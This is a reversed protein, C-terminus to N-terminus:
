VVEHTVSVVGTVYLETDWTSRPAGGNYLDNSSALTIPFTSSFETTGVIFNEHTVPDHEISYGTPLLGQGNLDIFYTTPYFLDMDVYNDLIRYRYPENVHGETLQVHDIIIPKFIYMDITVDLANNQTIPTATSWKGVMVQGPTNPGILDGVIGNGGLTYPSRFIKISNGSMSSIFGSNDSIPSIRYLGSAPLDTAELTSTSSFPAVVRTMTSSYDINGIFTLGDYSVATASTMNPISLEEVSDDALTVIFLASDGLSNSGNVLLKTEGEALWVGYVGNSNTVDITRQIANYPSQVVYVVGLHPTGSGNYYGSIYVTGDSSVAIGEVGYASPLMPLSVSNSYTLTGASHTFVELWYSSGETTTCFAYAGDSTFALPTYLNHNAPLDTTGIYSRSILDVSVFSPGFYKSLFGYTGYVTNYDTGILTLQFAPIDTIEVFTNDTSIDLASEVTMNGGDNWVWLAPIATSSLSTASDEIRYSLPYVGQDSFTGVINGFYVPNTQITYDVGSGPPLDGINSISYPPIGGYVGLIGTVNAEKYSGLEAYVNSGDRFYIHPIGNGGQGASTDIGLVNVWFDLTINNADSLRYIATAAADVDVTYDLVVDSGVVSSADILPPSGNGWQLLEISYPAIGGTIPLVRQTAVNLPVEVHTEHAVSPGDVVTFLISGAATEVGGPNSDTVMFDATVTQVTFADGTIHGTDGNLFMGDPLVTGNILEWSYPEYGGTAVLLLDIYGQGVTFDFSSSTIELAM